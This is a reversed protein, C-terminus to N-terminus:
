FEDRDRHASSVFLKIRDVNEVSYFVSVASELEGESQVFLYVSNSLIGRHYKNLYSM